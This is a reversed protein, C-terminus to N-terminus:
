GNCPSRLAHCIAAALNQDHVVLRGRALRQALQELALPVPRDGGFVPELREAVELGPGDREHDRVELHRAEAAHLQDLGDLGSAQRRGHHEEGAVARDLRRDVRHLTAGVIVEGFRDVGLAEEQQDRLRQLRLAGPFRQPGDPRGGVGRGGPELPHDPGAGGHLLDEGEHLRHRPGVGVDEDEALAAGALLQHGPGDVLQRGARAVPVDRDVARRERGVEELVLQETVLPPREGPGHDALLPAELQGVAARQEQVLDGVRRQGGLGLEEADELTVEAVL